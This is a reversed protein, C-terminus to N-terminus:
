LSEQLNKLKLYNLQDFKELKIREITETLTKKIDDEEENELLDLLKTITSERLTEFKNELVKSDESVIQFFEKKSSEDLTEIYNSLTQNAVRVMTKLPVEVSEVMERKKSTLISIINRKSQVRESLDIKHLYVLTDLDTYSNEINENLSKPLKANKLLHQIVFIGESLFEKADSESLNQPTTLQDYLSYVQSLTKNMLVNQKFERLNKKFDKENKYSEFLNREIETKLQGFTM